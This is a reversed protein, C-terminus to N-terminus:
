KCRSPMASDLWVAPASGHDRRTSRASVIRKSCKERRYTSLASGPLISIAIVSIDISCQSVGWGCCGCSAGAGLVAASTAALWFPEEGGDGGDGTGGTGGVSPAIGGTISTHILPASKRRPPICVGNREVIMSSDDASPGSAHMLWVGVGRARPWGAREDAPGRGRSPM